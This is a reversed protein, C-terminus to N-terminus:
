AHNYKIVKRSFISRMWFRLESDSMMRMDKSLCIGIMIWIFLYNLNFVNIDEVWSYAWRFAIFFGILRCFRNMSKNIALWSAWFFILGYFIVGVLGTWTFINLIAVENSSREARGTIESLSAFLVTENGRAPSRGFLWSNYKDATSIVEKYLLTRTDAKLNEPDVGSDTSVKTYDGPIYDDMKFINFNGVSALTFLVIPLVLFFRRGFNSIKNFWFDNTWYLFIFCLPVAFKIVNSRAGVDAFLVIFTLSLMLFRWRLPLLPLGLLFFPVLALYFGYADKWILFAMIVFSPIVFKVYGRLLLRLRQKDFAMYVAIPMLMAMGIDILGKWDWYTEAIFAGRIISIVNWVIYYKIWRIEVPVVNKKTGILVKFFYGLLSLQFIWVIFVNNVGFDSYRQVSLFAIVPLIYKIFHLVM